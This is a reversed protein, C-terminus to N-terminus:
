FQGDSLSAIVEWRNNPDTNKEIIKPLEKTDDTKLYLDCYGQFNKIDISKGNIKVKVQAPTVGAMDYVRKTMLSVIDEDLHSMNFRKLDPYFTICTYDEGKVPKIEPDARDGM